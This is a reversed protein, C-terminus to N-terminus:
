AEGGLVPEPSVSRDAAHSTVALSQGGINLMRTFKVVEAAGLAHISEWCSRLLKKRWFRRRGDSAALACNISGICGSIRCTM